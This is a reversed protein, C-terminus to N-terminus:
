MLHRIGHVGEIVLWAWMSRRLWGKELSGGDGPLRMSWKHEILEHPSPLFSLDELAYYYHKNGSSSTFVLGESSLESVHRLTSSPPPTPSKM